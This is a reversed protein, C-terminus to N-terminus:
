PAILAVVVEGGLRAQGRQEPLPEQDGLIEVLFPQEALLVEVGAVVGARDVEDDAGGQGAVEAAVVAEMPDVLGQFRHAVRDLFPVWWRMTCFMAEHISATGIETWTRTFMSSRLLSATTLRM